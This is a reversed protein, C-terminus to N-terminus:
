HRYEENPYTVTKVSKSYYITFYIFVRSGLYNEDIGSWIPTSCRSIHTNSYFANSHIVSSFDVLSWKIRLLGLCGVADSV